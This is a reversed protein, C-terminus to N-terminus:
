EDEVVKFAAVLGLKRKKGLEIVLMNGNEVREVKAKKLLEVLVLGLDEQSEVKEVPPKVDTEDLAELLSDVWGSLKGVKAQMGPSMMAMALKAKDFM